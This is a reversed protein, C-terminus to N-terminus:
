LFHVSPKFPTRQRGAADARREWRWVDSSAVAMRTSLCAREVQRLDDRSARLDAVRGAPQNPLVGAAGPSRSRRTGTPLGVPAAQCPSGNASHMDALVGHALLSQVVSACRLLGTCLRCAPCSLASGTSGRAAGDGWGNRGLKAVPQRRSLDPPAAGGPAEDEEGPRRPLFGGSTAALLRQNGGDGVTGPPLLRACPWAIAPDSSPQLEGEKRTGALSPSEPKRTRTGRM